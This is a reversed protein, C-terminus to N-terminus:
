LEIRSYPKCVRLRAEIELQKQRQTRDVSLPNQRNYVYLIEEVFACHKPGSMELLPYMLARDFTCPYYFGDSDILDDHNIRTYLDKRFTRLHSFCNPHGTPERYGRIGKDWVDDLIAISKVTRGSPFEVYSGTTVWINGDYYLDNLFSLVHASYLLDDGDVLVIISGDQTKKIMNCINHLAYKRSKNAFFHVKAHVASSFSSVFDKAISLTNDQSADDTIYVNYNQYEQTLISRLMVNTWQQSNWTPIVISFHSEERRHSSPSPMGSEKISAIERWFINVRKRLYSFMEERALSWWDENVHQINDNIILECGLLRAEIVIRPCTDFGPPLHILGKSVSLKELFELHGTNWIIEYDLHNNEAYKIACERGKIWSESGSIIWKNNIKQRSYLADLCSLSEDSFVSGLVIHQSAKLSDFNEQWVNRQANSMWFIKKAKSHFRANLLGHSSDPCCCSGDVQEHLHQSRYTCWMYDFAVIVYDLNDIAYAICDDSLRSYNGFIWFRDKKEEMLEITLRSTNVRHTPIPAKTLIAGISLEAGGVLQDQYYDACFLFM